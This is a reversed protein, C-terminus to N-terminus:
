IRCASYNLCKGHTGTSVYDRLAACVENLWNSIKSLPKSCDWSRAIKHHLLAGGNSGRYSNVPRILVLNKRHLDFSCFLLCTSTSLCSKQTLLSGGTHHARTSHTGSFHYTQHDQIMRASNQNQNHQKALVKLRRPLGSYWVNIANNYELNNASPITFIGDSASM